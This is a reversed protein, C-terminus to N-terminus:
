VILLNFLLFVKDSSVFELFGLKYIRKISFLDRKVLILLFRVNLFNEDM